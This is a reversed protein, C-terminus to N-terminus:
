SVLLHSNNHYVTDKFSSFFVLITTLLLNVKNHYGPNVRTAITDYKDTECKTSCTSDTKIAKDKNNDLWIEAQGVRLSM